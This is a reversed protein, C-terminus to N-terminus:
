AYELEFGANLFLCAFFLPFTYFKENLFISEACNHNVTHELTCLLRIQVVVYSADTEVQIESTNNNRKRAYYRLWSGTKFIHMEFLM